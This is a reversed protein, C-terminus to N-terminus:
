RPLSRLAAVLLPVVTLLVFAPLVCLLLPALLRIPLRRAAEEARRRRALRLELGARELGPVLPIGHRLHDALLHALAAAADGLQGLHEATADARPRGARVDSEARALATAVPEPCREAVLPLALPLTLGAGAGVLLLDVVEPLAATLAAARARGARRRRLHDHLPPGVLVALGVPPVLVLLAAGVGLRALLRPNPRPLPRRAGDAPRHSPTPLAALVLAGAASGLAAAGLTM